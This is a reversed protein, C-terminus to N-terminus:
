FMNFYLIREGSWVVTSRELLCEPWSATLMAVTGFGFSLSCPFLELDFTHHFRTVSGEACKGRWSVYGGPATRSDEARPQTDGPYGRGCLGIHEVFVVHERGLSAPVGLVDM